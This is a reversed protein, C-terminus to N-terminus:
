VATDETLAGTGQISVSATIVGNPEQSWAIGTLFGQGTLYKDGATAGEYYYSVYVPTSAGASRELLKAQSTDAPDYSMEMTSSWSEQASTFTKSPSGIHSVDVSELSKDVSYSTCQGLIDTPTGTDGLRIEAIVGTFYAM